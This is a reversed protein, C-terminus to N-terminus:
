TAQTKRGRPRPGQVRSAPAEITAGARVCGKVCSAPMVICNKELITGPNSMSNCGFKCGDGVIAGFKVLGTRHAADGDRVIVESGDVKFNALKTGAGLMTHNGLVSDGVYAFHGAEVHNLLVCGKLETCHGVVCNDGIIVNERLYAAHRIECNRGIIAPGKILAGPEVVTGEGIFIMDSLLWAGEMVRGRIGPSLTRAIFQELRPGLVKWVEDIDEFLEKHRFGDLDFFNRPDFKM